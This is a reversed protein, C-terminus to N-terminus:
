NDMMQAKAASITTHFASVQDAVNGLLQNAFAEDVVISEQFYRTLPKAIFEDNSALDAEDQASYLEVVRDDGQSIRRLTGYKITAPIVQAWWKSPEKGFGELKAVTRTITRSAIIAQFVSVDLNLTNFPAAESLVQAGSVCLDRTTWVTPDEFVVEVSEGILAVQLAKTDVSAKDIINYVNFAERSYGSLGLGEYLLRWAVLCAETLTNLEASPGKAAVDAANFVLKSCIGYGVGVNSKYHNAVRSAFDGLVAPTLAILEENASDPNKISTALMAVKAAPDKKGHKDKASMFDAFPVNDGYLHRYGAIGMLSGNIANAEDANIRMGGKSLNILAIGDLRNDGNISM